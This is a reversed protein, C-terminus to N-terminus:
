TLRSWATIGGAREVARRLLRLLDEGEPADCTVVKKLKLAKIIQPSPPRCRQLVKNLHPRHVGTRRAWESQSGARQVEREIRRLVDQLDLLRAQDNKVDSM